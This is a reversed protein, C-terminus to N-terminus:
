EIVINSITNLAYIRSRPPWRGGRWPELTGRHRHKMYVQTNCLPLATWLYEPTYLAATPIYTSPILGKPVHNVQNCYLPVFPSHSSYSHRFCCVRVLWQMTAPTPYMLLICYVTTTGYGLLLVMTQAARMCRSGGTSNLICVTLISIIINGSVWM